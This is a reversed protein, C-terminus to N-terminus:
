ILFLNLPYEWLKLDNSVRLAKLKKKLMFAIEKLKILHFSEFTYKFLEKLVNVFVRMSARAYENLAQKWSVVIM